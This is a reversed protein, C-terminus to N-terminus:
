TDFRAILNRAIRRRQRYRRRRRKSFIFLYYKLRTLVSFTRLSSLLVGRMADDLGGPAVAPPEGPQEVSVGILPTHAAKDQTALIFAEFQRWFQELSANYRRAVEGVSQRAREFQEATDDLALGAAGFEALALPADFYDSRMIVTPCGCLGAELVLATDEFTYFKECRRFLRAIQEPTQADPTYNLIEVSDAPLGFPTRGSMRFKRAYFCSGTRPAEPAESHFVSTDIVPMCLIGQVREISDAIRQSFAFVMEKADFQKDGGLLGPFNLAYRVVCEARLPNGSVIEPYVVIPTVGAVLHDAAVQPTLLPTVLDPHTFPAPENGFIEIYAPFGERNLWHCLLHLTRIGASRQTYAPAVIYYPYKRGNPVVPREGPAVFM